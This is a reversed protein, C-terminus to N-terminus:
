IQAKKKFKCSSYIIDEAFNIFALAIAVAILLDYSQVHSM